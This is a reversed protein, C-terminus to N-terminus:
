KQSVTKIANVRKWFGYFACVQGRQEGAHAMCPGQGGPGHHPSLMHQTLSPGPGPTDEQEKLKDGHVQVKAAMEDYVRSFLLFMQSRKGMNIKFRVHSKLFFDKRESIKM